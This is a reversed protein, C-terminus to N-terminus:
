TRRCGARQLRKAAYGRARYQIFEPIGAARLKQTLLQGRRVWGWYTFGSGEDTLFLPEEGKFEAPAEGTWTGRELRLYALIAALTGIRKERVLRAVRCM